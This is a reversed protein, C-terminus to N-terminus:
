RGGPRVAKMIDNATLGELQDETKLMKAYEAWIPDLRKQLTFAKQNLQAAEAPNALAADRLATIADTMRMIGSGVNIRIIRRISTPELTIDAASQREMFERDKDSVATGSGLARTQLYALTQERTLKLLTQTDEVSKGGPKFNGGLANVVRGLGVVQNAGFGTFSRGVLKYAESLAPFSQSQTLAQKEIDSVQNAANEGYQKSFADQGAPLNITTQAAPPPTAGIMRKFGELARPDRPDMGAVQTWALYNQMDSTPKEPEPAKPLLAAANKLDGLADPVNEPAVGNFLRDYGQQGGIAESGGQTLDRLINQGWGAQTANGQQPAPM